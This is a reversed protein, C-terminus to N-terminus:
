SPSLHLIEHFIFVWWYFSYQLPSPHPDSSYFQTLNFIMIRIFWLKEIIQSVEKSKVQLIPPYYFRTSKYVILAIWPLIANIQIFFSSHQSPTSFLSSFSFRHVTSDQSDHNSTELSCYYLPSQPPSPPSEAINQAQHSLQDLWWTCYECLWASQSRSTFM